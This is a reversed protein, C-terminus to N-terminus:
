DGSQRDSTELTALVTLKDRLPRRVIFKDYGDCRPDSCADWYGAMCDDCLWLMVRSLKAM